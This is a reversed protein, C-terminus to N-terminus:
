GNSILHSDLVLSTVVGFFPIFSSYDNFHALIMMDDSNIIRSSNGCSVLLKKLIYGM